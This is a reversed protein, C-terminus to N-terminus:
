QSEKTGELKRASRAAAARVFSISCKQVYSARETGALDLKDAQSDCISAMDADTADSGGGEEEAKAPAASLAFAIAVVSATLMASNKHM